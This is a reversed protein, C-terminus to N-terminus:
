TNTLQAMGHGSARVKYLEQNGNREAVFALWRGDPSFAPDGARATVRRLRRGDTRITWVGLPQWSPGPM